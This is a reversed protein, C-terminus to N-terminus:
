KTVIVDYEWLPYLPSLALRSSNSHLFSRFTYINRLSSIIYILQLLCDASSPSRTQVWDKPRNVLCPVLKFLTM